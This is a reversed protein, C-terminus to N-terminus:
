KREILLLISFITDWVGEWNQIYPVIMKAVDEDEIEGDKMGDDM